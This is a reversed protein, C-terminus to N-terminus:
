VVTKACRVYLSRSAAAVVQAKSMPKGDKKAAQRCSRYPLPMPSAEFSEVRRNSEAAGYRNLRSRLEQDSYRSQRTIPYDCAEKKRTLEDNLGNNILIKNSYDFGIDGRTLKECWQKLTKADDIDSFPYDEYAWAVVLTFINKAEWCSNAFSCDDHSDVV